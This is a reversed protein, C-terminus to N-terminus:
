ADTQANYVFINDLRLFFERLVESKASSFWMEWLEGMCYLKAVAQM